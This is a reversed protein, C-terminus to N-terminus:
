VYWPLIKIGEVLSYSHYLATSSLFESGKTLKMLLNIKSVSKDLLNIFSPKELLSQKIICVFWSYKVKIAICRIDCRADLRIIQNDAFILVPYKGTMSTSKLKPKTYTYNGCFSACSKAMHKVRALWGAGAGRQDSCQWLVKHRKGFIQMFCKLGARARRAWLWMQRKHKLCVLRTAM